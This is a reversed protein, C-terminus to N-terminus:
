LLLNSIHLPLHEAQLLAISLIHEALIDIDDLQYLCYEVVVM